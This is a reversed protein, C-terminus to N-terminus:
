EPDYGNPNKSQWRWADQCMQVLDREAKWNLRENALAPDSWCEAVDGPRRGVLKRKVTQGTAKEFTECLELVSVGRGTGLNVSLLGQQTRLYELAAVHAEALDVVHIFDRICSGDATPYDTGFVELHPRRGIAVQLLYPMLNNPIGRPHEGILGSEHAGVPNFYRLNAIRWAPDSAVVDSLIDEIILKTRGYPNSASRPFDERVPATEPSGYVTASSSFVLTKIDLAAMSTLLSITGAVNNEHYKLPQAVSEAVAKSAAFHIVDTIGHRVLADRVLDADAISAEIFVPRRGTIQELRNLVEPSSNSLNDLIVIDHGRELLAVCTHSGIYGLGGTVLIKM